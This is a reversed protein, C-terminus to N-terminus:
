RLRFIANQCQRNIAFHKEAVPSTILVEIEELSPLSDFLHVDLQGLKNSAGCSTEYSAVLVSGQVGVEATAPACESATQLTYVKSVDGLFASADAGAAAMPVRLKSLLRGDTNMTITLSGLADDHQEHFPGHNVCFEPVNETGCGALGLLGLLLAAV